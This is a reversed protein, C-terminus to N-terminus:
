LLLAVDNLTVSNQHERKPGHEPQYLFSMPDIPEYRM